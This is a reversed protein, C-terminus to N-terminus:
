WIELSGKSKTNVKSFDQGLEDMTMEVGALVCQHVGTVYSTLEEEDFLNMGYSFGTFDGTLKSAAVSKFFGPEVTVYWSVSLDTGYDRAGVYMKHDKLTTSQVLLLVRKKGLIFGGSKVVEENWTLGPYAREQLMSKTHNLINEGRGQGSFVLHHWKSSIQAESIKKAM